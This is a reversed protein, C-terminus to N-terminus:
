TNISYPHPLREWGRAPQIRVFLTRVRCHQTQQLGVAEALSLPRQKHFSFLTYGAKKLLMLGRINMHVASKNIYNAHHACLAAYVWFSPFLIAFVFVFVSSTLINPPHLNFKMLSFAPFLLVSVIDSTQSVLPLVLSFFLVASSVGIVKRELLRKGLKFDTPFFYQKRMIFSSTHKRNQSWKENRKM